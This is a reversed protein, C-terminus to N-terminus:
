ETYFLFTLDWLYVWRLSGARFLVFEELIRQFHQHLSFAIPNNHMSSLHYYKPLFSLLLYVLRLLYEIFM